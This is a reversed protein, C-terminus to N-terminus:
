LLDRLTHRLDDLSFPKQIFDAIGSQSLRSALDERAYGSLMVVPVQGSILQIERAAEVGDMVPMTQDLLVAVLDKRHRRYSAVADRGDHAFVVDFGLFALHEALVIRVVEEDDAVLVTGEGRWETSDAASPETAEAPREAAPFLVKFSAGNGPSSDIRLMGRHSRVIGSVTALGLGRGTFKTSFFPELIRGRAEEAIGPGEDAVELVHYVGAIAAQGAATEPLPEGTTARQDGGASIEEVADPSVPGATVSRACKPLCSWLQGPRM